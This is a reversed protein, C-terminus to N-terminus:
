HFSFLLLYLGNLGFTYRLFNILMFLSHKYLHCLTFKIIKLAIDSKNIIKFM